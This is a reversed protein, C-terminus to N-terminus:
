HFSMSKMQDSIKCLHSERWFLSLQRLWRKEEHSKTQQGSGDVVKLVDRWSFHRVPVGKFHCAEAVVQWISHLRINGARALFERVSRHHKDSKAFLAVFFGTEVLAATSTV